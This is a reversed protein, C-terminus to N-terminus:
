SITLYEKVNKLGDRIKWNANFDILELGNTSLIQPKLNVSSDLFALINERSIERFLRNNNFFSSVRTLVPITDRRYNDSPNVEAKM